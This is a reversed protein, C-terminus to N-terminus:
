EPLLTHGTYTPKKNLTLPPLGLLFKLSNLLLPYYKTARPTLVLTPQNVPRVRRRLFPTPFASILPFVSPEAKRVREKTLVGSRLLAVLAAGLASLAAM